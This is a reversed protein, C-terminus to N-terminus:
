LTLLNIYNNVEKPDRKLLDGIMGNWVGNVESGYKKDAVEYITYNFGLRSKILDLLDVIFGEHTPGKGEPNKKLTLYPPDKFLTYFTL